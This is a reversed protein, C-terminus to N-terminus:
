SCYSNQKNLEFKGDDKVENIEASDSALNRSATSFTNFHRRESFILRTACLITGPCRM